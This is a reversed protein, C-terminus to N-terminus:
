HSLLVPLPPNAVITKTAGGLIFDRIRSHGYAGMVLLDLSRATAYDELAQEITRGAAEEEELVIEIGHGALHKTLEAGSSKTDMTKIPTITVVRVTKARQLIPLADAVARAAPRSFDWAVGVIDLSLSNSRKPAEPFVITPRGSGFIVCEAVYQQQEAQEGIPIMTVDHMRARATVIGPIQLTTCSVMIPQHVIGRKTAMSEFAGFLDRANAVSKQREAAIMGPIDLLKNALVNGVNPIEIKFTLASISAGLAGAFDVAQEVAAVPTPEPYSSLQLMVDNFAM